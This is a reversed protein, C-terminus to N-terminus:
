FTVDTLAQVQSAGFRTTYIKQLHDVELMAMLCVEKTRTLTYRVASGRAM